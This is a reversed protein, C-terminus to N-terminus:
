DTLTITIRRFKSAEIVGQSASTKRLSLRKGLGAKVYGCANLARKTSLAKDTPLVTPGETYGVCYLNRYDPYAKLFVNIRAKIESTLVPSGDAFGSITTTVPGRKKAVTVTYPAFTSPMNARTFRQIVTTSGLYGAAAVFAVSGNKNQTWSGVGPLVVKNKCAVDTPDILCVDDGGSPSNLPQLVVPATGKTSGRQSGSPETVVVIVPAETSQGFEDTIRLQVRAEGVFGPAPTFTVTGDPNLVFRGKGPLDVSSKCVTDGPDVLCINGVAGNGPLIVNPTVTTTKNITTTSGSPPLVPAAPKLVDVSVTTAATRSYVDTVRYDVKALGFFGSVAQFTTQGNALLTFTGKGAIVVVSKCVFDVPDVICSLGSIGRNAPAQLTVPRTALTTAHVPSLDPAAPLVVPQSPAPTSINFSRTADTAASYTSDGPQSATVTCTGASVFTIVFGSVTCVSPTSSVLSVTLGSSATPAVTLSGTSLMQNSPQAFTITQASQVQAGAAVTITQTYASVSDLLGDSVKYTFSDSTTNANATYRLKGADIDAITVVQNATVAVWSTGNNYELTGGSPLTAIKVSVEPNVDPDAYTGFDSSTLLEPVSATASKTDNTSTPPSNYSNTVTSTSITGSSETWGLGLSFDLAFYSTGGSGSADTGIKISITSLNDYRVQVRGKTYSGSGSNYNTSAPATSIFQLLNGSASVALTTNSSLTYAQVGTFQTLQQSDGPNSRDLDYSNVYVNQLTVPTGTSGGTYTGGVFFSFKYVVAGAGSTSIDSQLLDAASSVASGGDFNSITAGTVSVTEVSADVVTSSITAVNRYVVIDGATKGKANGTGGSIVDVTQNTENFKLSVGSANLILAQAPLATATIGSLALGAILLGSLISKVPKFM